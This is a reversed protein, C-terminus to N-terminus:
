QWAFQQNCFNDNDLNYSLLVLWSVYGTELRMFFVSGKLSVLVDTSGSGALQSGQITVVEGGAGSGQMVSLVTAVPTHAVDYSYGSALEAVLGSAGSCTLDVSVDVSAAVASPPTLCTIRSPTAGTIDCPQGGVSVRTVCPGSSPPAFGQGSIVIATGGALSGVNPVVSAITLNYQLTVGRTDVTGQPILSVSLPKTGAYDEGLTCQISDDTVAAVACPVGGFLVKM